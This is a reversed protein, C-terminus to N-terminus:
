KAEEPKHVWMTGIEPLSKKQCGRPAELRFAIYLPCAFKEEESNPILRRRRNFFGHFSTNRAM